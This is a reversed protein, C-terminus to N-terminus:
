QIDLSQNNSKDYNERNLNRIDKIMMKFFRRYQSKMSPDKKRLNNEIILTLEEAKNREFRNQMLIKIIKRCALKRLDPNAVSDDTSSGHNSLVPVDYVEQEIKTSKPQPLQAIEEPAPQKEEAKPKPAPVIAEKIEEKKMEKNPLSEFSSNDSFKYEKRPVKIKESIGLREGIIKRKWYLYLKHGLKALNRLSPDSNDIFEEKFLKVSKLIDCSKLLSLTPEIELLMQFYIYLNQATMSENKTAHSNLYLFGSIVKEIKMIKNLLSSLNDDKSDFNNESIKLDLSKEISKLETSLDNPEAKIASDKRKRHFAPQNIDSNVKSLSEIPTKGRFFANAVEISKLLYKNKSSSYIDYNEKYDCISTIPLISSSNEGIFNVFFQRQTIKGTDEDEVEEIESIISPWWPYGRIKAWVMQDKAFTKRM